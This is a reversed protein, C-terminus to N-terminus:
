KKRALLGKILAVVSVIVPVLVVLLTAINVSAAFAVPLVGFGVNSPGDLNNGLAVFYFIAALVAVGLAILSLPFLIEKRKEAKLENYYFEWAVFFVWNVLYVFLLALCYALYGHKFDMIFLGMWFGGFTFLAFLMWFSVFLCYAFRAKIVIPGRTPVVYPVKEQFKKQYLIACVGIAIFLLSYLIADLPYIASPGGEVLSLYKGAIRGVFIYIINIVAFSCIAIGNKFLSKNLREKSENRFFAHILLLTWLTMFFSLFLPVSRLLDKIAVDPSGSVISGVANVFAYFMNMFTFASALFFVALLIAVVLSQIRAKRELSPFLFNERSFLNKMVMEGM